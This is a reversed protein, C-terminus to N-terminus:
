NYFWLRLPTDLFTTNLFTSEPFNYSLKRKLFPSLFLPDPGRGKQLIIKSFQGFTSCFKEFHLNESNVLAQLGHHLLMKEPSCGWVRWQQLGQYAIVFLYYEYTYEYNYYYNYNVLTQETNWSHWFYANSSESHISHPTYFFLTFHRFLTVISSYALKYLLFCKLLIDNM